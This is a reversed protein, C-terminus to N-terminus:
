KASELQTIRALAADLKRTLNNIRTREQRLAPELVIQSGGVTPPVVFNTLAATTIVNNSESSVDVWQQSTGDDYWVALQLNTSSWWLPHAAPDVPPTDGIWLGAAGDIGPPGQISGGSVWAAGDYMWFSDDAQVIYADGQVNGTTPLDGGTPVEGKMKVGAGPDGPPGAPGPPGADGPASPSIQIMWAVGNFIYTAGSGPDTYQDDAAPAAPFDFAM